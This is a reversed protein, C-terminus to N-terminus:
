PLPLNFTRVLFIAMQDRTVVTSPCYNGGGCGGTVGETALQEIWAAAWHDSPIDAFLTGSPPPPVYSSGHKARLLFVAMQDRTVASSPCFNGNSCGGTIGEAAMEKIWAAAWHDAPVDNFGTSAGVDPPLFSSGHIGKLLFIAMQDRTVPISPCYDLPSMGCGGTIGSAYLAEIYRWAWHSSPVDAFTATDILNNIAIDFSKTTSLNGSDTSRICISYSTRAEFDFIAAAQLKDGSIQFSADDAGGCFSYAFSEYSDPDITSISGVLSGITKNEDINSNSLSIDIPPNNFWTVTTMVTAINSDAQGDSAQYTFLDAGLFNPNPTYSIKEAVVSANGGAPQTVISYTLPDGNPDSCPPPAQVNMGKGTAM